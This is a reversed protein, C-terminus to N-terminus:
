VFSVFSAICIFSSPLFRRRPASMKDSANTVTIAPSSLKEHAKKADCDMWELKLAGVYADAGHMAVISCRLASPPCSTLGLNSGKQFSLWAEFQTWFRSLYVVDLEILVSCGLYLLNINPLMQGFEAKEEPTKKEGQPLSMLDYFVFEISPHDRLYKQLEVLQVGDPDPDNKNEWRHSVQSLPSHCM